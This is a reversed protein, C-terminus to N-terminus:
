ITEKWSAGKGRTQQYFTYVEKLIYSLHSKRESVLEPEGGGCTPEIEGSVLWSEKKRSKM